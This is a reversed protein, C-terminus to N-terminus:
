QRAGKKKDANEKIIRMIEESETESLEKRLRRTMTAESIGLREAIQWLPVAWRRAEARILENNM